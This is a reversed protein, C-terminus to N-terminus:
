QSSRHGGALTFSQRPLPYPRPPQAPPDKNNLIVSPNKSPAWRFWGGAGRNRKWSSDARRGSKRKGCREAGKENDREGRERDDDSATRECGRVKRSNDTILPVSTAVRGNESEASFTRERHFARVDGPAGTLDSIQGCGEAYINIYM